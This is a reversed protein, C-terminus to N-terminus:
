VATYGKGTKKLKGDRELAPLVRYLYTPGIGMKDALESVTIGPKAAVFELTEAARKGRSYTSSGDAISRRSRAHGAKAKRPKSAGQGRRPRGPGPLEAQEFTLLMKKLQNYEDVLPELESIRERVLRQVDSVISMTGKTIYGVSVLRISAAPSRAM